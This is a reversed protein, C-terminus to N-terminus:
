SYLRGYEDMYYDVKQTVGGNYSSPAYAFPVDTEVWRDGWTHINYGTVVQRGDNKFYLLTGDAMYYLIGAFHLRTNTSSASGSQNSVANYIGKASLRGGERFAASVFESVFETLFDEM